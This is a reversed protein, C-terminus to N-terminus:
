IFYEPYAAKFVCKVEEINNSSNIPFKLPYKCGKETVLEIHVRVGSSTPRDPFCVKSVVDKERIQNVWYEIEKELSNM